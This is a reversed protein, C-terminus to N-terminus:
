GLEAPVSYDLGVAALGVLEASDSNLPTKCALLGLSSQTLAGSELMDVFYKLEDAPAKISMVNKYLFNVFATNSHGAKDGALTWFVDTRIALNVLDIYSMGQDQM